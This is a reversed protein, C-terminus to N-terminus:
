IKIGSGSPRNVNYTQRVTKRRGTGPDIEAPADPALQVDVLEQPKSLLEAAKQAAANQAVLTERGQQAAQSMLADNAAQKNAAELTAAAQIKAAKKGGNFIFGM